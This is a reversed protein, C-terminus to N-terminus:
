RIRDPRASGALLLLIFSLLFSPHCEEDGSVVVVVNVRLYDWYHSGQGKM